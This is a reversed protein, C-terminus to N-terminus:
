RNHRDKRWHHRVPLARRLLNQRDKRTAGTRAECSIRTTGKGRGDRPIIKGAEEDLRGILRRKSRAQQNEMDWCSVSEDVCTIGSRTDKQGTIAVM